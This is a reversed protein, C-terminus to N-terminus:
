VYKLVDHLNTVYDFEQPSEAWKNHRNAVGVFCCDFARAAEVDSDGDGVVLMRKHDAGTQEAIYILNEVKSGGVPEETSGLMGRFYQDINLIRAAEALAPTATGSNLYLPIGIKELGELLELAGDVLGDERIKGQVYDNFQTAGEDILSQIREEPEGLKEFVHRMIENRGGKKGFGYLANAEELYPEYRGEWPKTVIHWANKKHVAESDLVWVGDFDFGIVETALNAM